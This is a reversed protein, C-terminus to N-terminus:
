SEVSIKLKFRTDCIVRLIVCSNDNTNTVSFQVESKLSWIYTFQENDCKTNLKTWFHLNILHMSKIIVM